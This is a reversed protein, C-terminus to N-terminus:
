LQITKDPMEYINVNTSTNNESNRKKKFFKIGM